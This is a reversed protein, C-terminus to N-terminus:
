WKQSLALTGPGPRLSALWHALSQFNPQCLTLSTTYIVPLIPDDPSPNLVAWALLLKATIDLDWLNGQPFKHISINFRMFATVTHQHNQIGGRNVSCKSFLGNLLFFIEWILTSRLNNQSNLGTRNVLMKMMWLSLKPQNRSLRNLHEGPLVRWGPVASPVKPKSIMPMLNSVQGSECPGCTTDM